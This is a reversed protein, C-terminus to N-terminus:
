EVEGEPSPTLYKERLWPNTDMLRQFEREAVQDPTLKRQWNVGLAATHKEMYEAFEDPHAERLDRAAASYARSLLQDRTPEKVEEGDQRAAGPV